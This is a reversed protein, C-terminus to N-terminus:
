SLRLWGSLKAEIIISHCMTCRKRMGAGATEGAIRADKETKAIEELGASAALAGVSVPNTAAM